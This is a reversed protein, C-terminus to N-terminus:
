VQCNDDDIVIDRGFCGGGVRNVLIFATLKLPPRSDKSFKRSPARAIFYSRVRSPVVPVTHSLLHSSEPWVSSDLVNPYTPLYTSLYYESLVRDTDVAVLLLGTYTAPAVFDSNELSIGARFLASNGMESEREWKASGHPLSTRHLFRARVVLLEIRSCLREM